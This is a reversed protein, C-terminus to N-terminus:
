QGDEETAAVLTALEVGREREGDGEDALWRVSVHVELLGRSHVAVVERVALQDLGLDDDFGVELQREGVVCSKGAAYRELETSAIRQAVLEDFSQAVFRMHGLNAVLLTGGIVQAILVVFVVEVLSLGREKAHRVM